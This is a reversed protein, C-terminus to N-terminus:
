QNGGSESANAGGAVAPGRNPYAPRKPRVPPNKELQSMVEQIARELQPDRGQAMLGPDDIVHIDPAVGQNEILWNGDTTYFSFSPVTVNGGDVLPPAGSIGILGGWTRTGILPGLGSQKFYYPFADGGSGSWENILMAKPGAHAVQPWQWDQGSRVAWYNRVPRNLLEVFRDPIQGGNNFREDIILGDLHAQGYFQRALETQGDVGTSPVYIYGIRGKSAEHVQRRKADTWALHRLRAEDTLTEVLVTRAGEMTPRSNVTLEVTEGALGQFAAWPDKKTDLPTGNVALLYDGEKVNIGSQALPSRVESDWIAGDIIRKIRFAGNELAYDAGLLGVGRREPQELDGGGRYTHSSNLEGILEGLIWHVDERTSAQEVLAGYHTRMAPWNVGHMNPDYFYDRELRWADAFIQRWEARPDVTTELDATALTKEIKQQPKIDIIAFTANSQPQGPPVASRVLMRKGDATVLFTNADELIVKEEREELDWFVIPNKTGQPEGTRAHKHYLVKGQVAQLEGYNGPKIPLIVIRREFDDLDINVPQPAPVVRASDKRVSDRKAAERAQAQAPSAAPGKEEDNRPALPSPVDKRLPVAAIVTGNAYIWSSEVASYQPTFDRNTLFYLYKGAPDFAPSGANYFGSTAQTAKGAQADYLMLVSQADDNTKTYALWRGDGSWSPTWGVLNGHSNFRLQDASSVRGSAVDVVKVFGGQDVFAIRKSDPSWYPRYRYGPGLKTVTRPESGGDAPEITLEYEGTRDSWYAISRGDPSWAPTREASASGGALNRVVGHKEPVTFLEGRAEFVARKGTPSVDFNQILRAVRAPRPRVSALDSVVQVPVARSQETKLDLLWIQGGNQFVIESPGIGPFYVDDDTFQTLQRVAGSSVDAAWINKRFGAGRDSVFYISKGDPAWMPQIDNAASEAIRKATKKELDFVWIDQALGGRYRKWTSFDIAGTTYALRKGDPSLSGFEGYPMPLQEPLGGETSVRFLKNFRDKESTMSSAILLARGDPYWDVMRDNAPHHTVRTPEGGGVPITYVDTNGDYIGSFALRRGDPSFRPFTEEGRPSSLRQAVGGTKPVVWIDGGYVFAIQTASVDPYRMLRADVQAALPSAAALLALAGSAVRVSSSM